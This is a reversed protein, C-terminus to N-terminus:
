HVVTVSGTMQGPHIICHYTYRGVTTITNQHTGTDQTGSNMPLPTPGGDYTVSHQAAGGWTWTVTGGTQIVVAQPSFSFDAVSVDATTPPSTAAETFTAANALGTFSASVTQITSAVSDITSAVGNSNTTSQAPSVAGLGSAVAWTVVVGPVARGSPDVATVSLPTPLPNNFYWNQADGGSKLLDSPPRPPSTGDGNCGLLLLGVAWALERDWCGIAM